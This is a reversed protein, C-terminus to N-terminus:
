GVKRSDSKTRKSITVMMDSKLLFRMSEERWLKSPNVPKIEFDRVLMLIAKYLEVSAINKGICVRAGHGFAFEYDKMRTKDQPNEWREPRYMEADPGYFAKDRGMVWNNVGVSTGGPIVQGPIVEDGGAPVARPFSTSISPSLRLSESICADLWPLNQTESYRPVGKSIEGRADATDIEDRLKRHASPNQLLYGVTGVIANATTDSGAVLTAVVEGMVQDHHIPTGDLDKSSMIAGILDKKESGFKERMDVMESAMRYAAGIGTKTPMKFVLTIPWAFLLRGLAPFYMLLLSFLYGGSLGKSIGMVDEDKELFGFAGGYALESLIDLTLYNVWKSLDFTRDQEAEQDLREQWQRLMDDIQNEMQLVSTMSYASAVKRRAKQHTSTLKALFVPPHNDFDLKKNPPKFLGTRSYAGKGIGYIKKVARADCFSLSNPSDRFIPGYKQHADHYILHERKSLAVRFKWLVSISALFPGPYRSLPSFFRRKIVAFIFYAVLFLPLFYTLQITITTINADPNSFLDIAAM